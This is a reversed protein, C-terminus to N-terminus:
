KRRVAGGKGRKYTQRNQGMLEKLDYPSLKEESIKKETTVNKDKRKGLNNLRKRTGKDLLSAINLKVVRKLIFYAGM